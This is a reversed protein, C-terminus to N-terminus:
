VRSKRVSPLIKRCRVLEKMDLKAYIIEERNNSAKALIEGWPSVIMSNGYLKIGRNDTGLQNPALVYCLNEIARARVLIKWHAEGTKQTFASPIALIHAGDQAYSQYLNPFRLDYCISLGCKFKDVKSLTRKKGKLFNNSERIKKQGLLADFMNIKRYKAQIQGKPNILLSTNYVKRQTSVKEYISGALVHIKRKKALDKIPNISPGPTSEAISQLLTKNAIAGRYSFVEPLLIFKARADAARNIFDLAKDINKQKNNQANLQILATKM